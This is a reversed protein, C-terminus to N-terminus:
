FSRKAHKPQLLYFLTHQSDSRGQSDRSSIDKVVADCITKTMNKDHKRIVHSLEPEPEPEIIMLFKM